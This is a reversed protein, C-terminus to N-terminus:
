NYVPLPSEKFEEKSFMESQDSYHPSDPRGMAAGFPYITRTQPASGDKPWKVMLMFSDGGAAVYRGDVEDPLFLLARLTEPGGAIPLDAKGRRLRAFEAYPVDLKGFHGRLHADAKALIDRGAPLTERAYLKWQLDQLLILALSDASGQGDATWDWTDLLAVAQTLTGAARADELAAKFAEGLRSSKDYAKDFKIRHIDADDFIDDSELLTKARLIRNTKWMEVGVLGPYDEPQMDDAPATALWPLNNANVVYGAPPNLLFPIREPPEYETWILDSRDGPLVDEWAISPDRKPLRANYLYAINGLKDAYIYNTAPIAQMAMVERWEELSKTRSLKYYQEFQRVEGYGAYRIAYAGSKNKIVPGHVSGWVSQRVPVVVPGFKVKLWVYRHALDKWEGDLKYRKGSDDLVLKYVDTLDARNVTNTWGLNANHGMLIVPSGPFLAGQMSWGEGSAVRAEYWAAAGEWPQHSNSVLVTSGDATRHPAFAFANSGRETDPPLEGNGFLRSVTGDVGFFLPSVLVFGGIVDDGTLPFIQPRLVEKPHMAAYLNLGDAYGQAMARAEPSVTSIGAALQGQVDILKGFYDAQAGEPGDVAGLEGRVALVQRQITAFDDESHAFALGFATAPDTEGYVTPVGYEDREIRYPAPPATSQLGSLRAGSSACSSVTFGLAILGLLMLGAGAFRLLRMIM